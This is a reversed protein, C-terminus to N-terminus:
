KSTIKQLVVDATTANELKLGSASHSGQSPNGNRLNEWKKNIKTLITKMEEDNMKNWVIYLSFLQDIVTWVEKMEVNLTAFWSRINVGKKFAAMLLAALAIIHPPYLLAMDTRYSDSVLNWGMELVGADVKADNAYQVFPRYPHYVVLYFNMEELVYYESELIDNMNYPWHADIEQMKREFNRAHTICEEVKAALYLCGPAFLRPDFEIFSNELYFRRFFVTATAVVRQRLSLKKGLLQIVDSFYIRAKKIEEDSLYERDEPNCNRVKNDDIGWKSSYIKNLM